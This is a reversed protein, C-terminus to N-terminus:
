NALQRDVAKIPIYLHSQLRSTIVAPAVATGPLKRTTVPGFPRSSVGFDQLLDTEALTNADREYMINTQSQSRSHGAQPQYGNSTGVNLTSDAALAGMFDPSLFSSEDLLM